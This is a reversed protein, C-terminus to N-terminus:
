RKWIANGAVWTQLVQVTGLEEPAIKLPNKDLLVLDAYKGKEISGLKDELHIQWAAYITISKLAESVSVRENETIINGTETKRNVSTSALVLPNPVFQPMDAHLSYPLGAAVTSQIPFIRNAREEGLVEARLFDGYFLLHNIHFSPTLTMNKMDSLKETPLLMCHEIRNRYGNVPTKAHIKKFVGIVEDNAIDGQAHVAVPYGKAHAKEIWEQLTDEKILSHSTHHPSLNIGDITFNSRIYPQRLFMSGSYPSGDYWMKLGIIKYFDDNNQEKQPLLDFNEKRLYLFLRQNPVRKPLKGIAALLQYLPKPTSAAIHEYLSFITKKNASLGMNVVSTVGIKAYDHMVEQTNKVFNTMVDKQIQQRIPELAEQEIIAGTLKGNADRDYYSVKSPDPTKETIGLTSFAKSNVYFVHLAKTTIVLPNNPAISDMYHLTPTKVGKTLIPDFGYIYVWDDKKANKVANAIRSWVEDPKRYNVGSVDTMSYFVAALDHHGHADFFGPMLAKGQLDIVQTQSNKLKLIAEKSGVEVIKGNKVYIAEVTPQADNMTLIDGNYYILDNDHNYDSFAIYALAIVLLVVLLLSIKKM